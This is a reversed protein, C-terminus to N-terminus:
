QNEKARILKILMRAVKRRAAKKSSCPPSKVSFDLMKCQAIFEIRGGGDDRGIYEYSPTDVGIAQCYEVLAGIPNDTKHNPIAADVTLKSAITEKPWPPVHYGVFSAIAEVVARQKALRGSRARVKKTEIDPKKFVAQAAHSVHHDDGERQLKYKPESWGGIQSAMYAVSTAQYPHEVLHRVISERIPQWGESGNLLIFQMDVVTATGCKLRHLFAEAVTPNFDEARVAVKIVREFEKDSLHDLDDRRISTEARRNARELAAQSNEKARSELTKNIYECISSVHETSYPLKTGAVFALVQRQVVLDAYRRIPSTGHTYAPLNLGYHGELLTGYNAKNMVLSFQKRATELDAIPSKVGINLREMIATRDPAAARATHNRFPIPIENEVCFKALETNALIMLEQVIIHGITERTDKLRRLHGEETTLWGNSLDYLVLAGSKRRKEMLGDALRRIQSLAPYLEHDEQELIKSIDEYALQARSTLQSEDITIFQPELSHDLRMRIAMVPRELDKTISCSGESFRRPIMPQNRNGPMYITEVRRYATEDFASNKSIASAVNAICFTATWGRADMEAWIADDRDRTTASDITIGQVDM